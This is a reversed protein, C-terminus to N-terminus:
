EITRLPRAESRVSGGAGLQATVWWRAGRARAGDLSAMPTAITDSTEVSTLVEGSPALLEVVYRSAGPVARWVFPTTATVDADPAPTVLTVSTADGRMEDPGTVRGARALLAAGAVLVLGAAAALPWPVARRRAAVPEARAVERLMRYEDRTRPDALVRDLRAVREPTDAGSEALALIEELTAPAPAGERARRALLTAYRARLEDDNESM